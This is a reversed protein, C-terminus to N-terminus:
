RSPGHKDLIRETTEATSSLALRPDHVCEQAHMEAIIDPALPVCAERSHPDIEPERYPATVAGNCEWGRQRCRNRIQDRAGDFTVVAEPDGLFRALEPMYESTAGLHVGRAALRKRVDNAYMEGYVEDFRKRGSWFSDTTEIGPPKQLALMEALRHATGDRRCICYLGLVTLGQHADVICGPVFRHANDELAQSGVTEPYAFTIEDWRPPFMILDAHPKLHPKAVVLDEISPM